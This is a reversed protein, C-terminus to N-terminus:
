YIVADEDGEVLDGGDDGQDKAEEHITETPTGNTDMAESASEGKTGEHKRKEGELKGAENDQNAHVDNTNTGVREEHSEDGGNAPAEGM